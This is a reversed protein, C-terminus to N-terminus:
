SGGKKAVYAKAVDLEDAPKAKARKKGGAGKLVNLYFSAQRKQQPTGNAALARVKALNQSPPGGVAATLAGPRKIAAQIFKAAM